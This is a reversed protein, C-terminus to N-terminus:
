LLKLSLGWQVHVYRCLGLSCCVNQSVVVPKGRFSTESVHASIGHKNRIVVWIQTTSRVPHLLNGVILLVVWIQPLPGDKTHFKQAQKESTMERPFWHHRLSIGATKEPKNRRCLLFSWDYWCQHLHKGQARPPYNDKINWWSSYLVCALKPTIYTWPETILSALWHLVRVHVYFISYYIAKNEM